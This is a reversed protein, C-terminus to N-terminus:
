QRPSPSSTADASRQLRRAASRWHSNRGYRQLVCAAVSSLLRGSLAPLSPTTQTSNRTTLDSHRATKPKGVHLIGDKMHDLLRHDVRFFTVQQRFDFEPDSTGQVMTTEGPNGYFDFKCFIGNAFKPDFGRGRVISVIVDVRAGLLDSPDEVFMDEDESPLSGDVNCPQIHCQLVGEVRGKYDCVDVADEFEIM